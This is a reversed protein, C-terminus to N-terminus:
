RLIHWGTTLIRDKVHTVRRMLDGKHAYWCEPRFQCFEQYKCPRTKYYPNHYINNAYLEALSGAGPCFIGNHCIEGKHVSPCLSRRFSDDQLFPRNTKLIQAMALEFTAPNYVAMEMQENLFAPPSAKRVAIPAFFRCGTSDPVTRPNETPPIIHVSNLFFAVSM